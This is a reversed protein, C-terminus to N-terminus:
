SEEEVRRGARRMSRVWRSWSTLIRRQNAQHEKDANVCRVCSDVRRDVVVSGREYAEGEEREASGM